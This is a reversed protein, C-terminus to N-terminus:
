EADKTFQLVVNGDRTFTLVNGEVKVQAPSNLHSSFKGEGELSPCAMMTMAAPKFTMTNGELTYVTRYTNCGAFGFVGNGERFEMTPKREKFLTAVDGDAIKTLTWKGTLSEPNLSAADSETNSSKVFQLVVEKDKAFSLTGDNDISIELEPTSLTSLYLPEKNGFLCAKRTAAFSPASFENKENLTFAGTYNNCGSNGSVINNDFNFQIHPVSREFAEQAAEGKLTKLEWQGALDKKDIPKVSSCSQTGLILVAIVALIAAPKLITKM